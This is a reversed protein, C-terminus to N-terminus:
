DIWLNISGVSVLIQLGMGVDGTSGGDKVSRGVM